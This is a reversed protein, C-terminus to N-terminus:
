NDDNDTLSWIQKESMVCQPFKTFITVWRSKVKKIKKIDENDLGLYNKLLYITGRKSGSQPFITVSHAENLIRRTDNGNTSLHNTVIVSIKFHRGTELISNLISYVAERQKKNSIVDIDDFVVLSDSLEEIDLPDYVLDDDIKIRKPKLLDLVADSGIASFIYIPNKKKHLKQYQKIYLSTYTSKGSGSPGTIYLVSRETKPDPTQQFKGGDVLILHDFSKDIENSETSNPDVYIIRKDFKGGEIKGLTNGFNLNLM